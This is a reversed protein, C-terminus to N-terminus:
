QMPAGNARICSWATNLQRNDRKGVTRSSVGISSTCTLVSRVPPRTLRGTVHHRSSRAGGSSPAWPSRHSPPEDTHGARDAPSARAPWFPGDDEPSRWWWRWYHRRQLAIADSAITLAAFGVLTLVIFLLGALPVPARGILLSSLAAAFLMAVFLRALSQRQLWRLHDGAKIGCTVRRRLLRRSATLRDGAPARQWAIYCRAGCDPPKAAILKEIM